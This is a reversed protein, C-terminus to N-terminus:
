RVEYEAQIAAHLEAPSYRIPNIKNTKKNRDLRIYSFETEEQHQFVSGAAALCEYSHTTAIIQVNAAQAAQYIAQWLAEHKTHHIGNEIEDLLVLSDQKNLIALIITLLRSVGDGMLSIPIKRALGTLSAHIIPMGGIAVVSLGVIRPEIIKLADIIPSVKNEIDLSSYRNADEQPNTRITSPIYIAQFVHGHEVKNIDFNIGQQTMSLFSEQIQKEGYHAVIKLAPTPSATQNTLFNQNDKNNSSATSRIHNEQYSIILKLWKNKKDELSIAIKNSFDFNNFSPRWSYNPDLTIHSVGRWGFHRSMLDHNLRDMALFIAELVTSKGANNKGGLLLIRPAKYIELEDISKYNAIKISKFM